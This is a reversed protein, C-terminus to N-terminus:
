TAPRPRQVSAAVRVVKALEEVNHVDFMSGHLGKVKYELLQRGLLNRWGLFLLRDWTSALGASKVLHTIGNFASARYGSVAMVQGVLGPDNLM